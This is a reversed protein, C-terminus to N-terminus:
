DGPPSSGDCYGLNMLTLSAPQVTVGRRGRSTLLCVGAVVLVIIVCWELYSQRIGLIKSM